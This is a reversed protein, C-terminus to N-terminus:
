QGRSKRITGQTLIFLSHHPDSLDNQLNMFTDPSDHGRKKKPPPPPQKGSQILM